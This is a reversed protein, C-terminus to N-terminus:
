RVYDKEFKTKLMKDFFLHLVKEVMLQFYIESSHLCLYNSIEVYITLVQKFTYIVALPINESRKEYGQTCLIVRICSVKTLLSSHQIRIEKQIVYFSSLVADWTHPLLYYQIQVSVILYVVFSLLNAVQDWGDLVFM